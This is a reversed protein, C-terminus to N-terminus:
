NGWLLEVARLIEMVQKVEASEESTALRFQGPVVVPKPLIKLDSVTPYSVTKKPKLPPGGSGSSNTEAPM